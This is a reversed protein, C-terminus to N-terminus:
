RPLKFSLSCWFFLLFSPPSRCWNFSSFSKEKVIDNLCTWRELSVALLLSSLYPRNLCSKPTIGDSQSLRLFPYSGLNHPHIFILIIWSNLRLLEVTLLCYLFKLSPLFFIFLDCFGLTCVTELYFLVSFLLSNSAILFSVLGSSM